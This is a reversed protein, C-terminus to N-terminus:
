GSPERANFYERAGGNKFDKKYPQSSVAAYLREM